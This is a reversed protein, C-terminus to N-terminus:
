QRADEAATPWVAGDTFHEPLFPFHMCFKPQFVQFSFIVRCVSTYISFTNPFFPPFTHLPNMQSLIPGLPLRKHVRYYVLETVFTLHRIEQDGSSSNAEWSSRKM